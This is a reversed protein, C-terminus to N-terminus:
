LLSVGKPVRVVATGAIKDHWAQRGPDIAIWIFGLGAIVLSLFCGLARVVATAWDISRGDVRIVKLGFVIGGITTGKLKWMIAGYAALVLLFADGDNVINLLIAVLIVDILLAGMRVMFEARPYTTEIEGGGVVQAQSTSMGFAKAGPSATSPGQGATGSAAQDTASAEGASAAGSVANAASQTNQASTPAEPHSGAAFAQTGPGFGGGSGGAGAPAVAPPPPLERDRKAKVALILAYVAIGLGLIGLVNYVIGGLVPVVYLLLMLVGGALVALATHLSEGSKSVRFMARGIWALVVAKGFLQAIFVAVAAFPIFVIGIVTVFLLGFVIPTLLMALVSALLTQGPQKQLTDVCRDVTDRCLVAILVYLALFGIALGWAWGLGQAFALPRLYVAAHRVWPKLGEFDWFPISVVNQTGGHIVASPDRILKGGVVVVDGAVEANPGLEVNGLVAVVDGSAYGNLYTNGLVAVADETRGTVRTDGLISVVADDVDGESTSSGLVSVVADAREGKPLYSNGGVTVLADGAHRRYRRERASRPPEDAREVWPRDDNPAQADPPADAHPTQPAEPAEAAPPTAPPEAQQALLPAAFLGALTVAVAPLIHRPTFTNM